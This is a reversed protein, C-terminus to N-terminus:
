NVAPRMKRRRIEGVLLAAFGAALLVATSPEPIIPATSDVWTPGSIVGHNSGAQDFLTGGAGEDFNWYSVLGPTSDPILRNHWHAMEGPTRAVNWIRVEDMVGLFQRNNGNNNGLILNGTALAVSTVFDESAVSQGNLFLTAATGDYVVALHSWANLPVIDPSAVEQNNIASNFSQTSAQLALTYRNNINHERNVVRPFLNAIATPFVWAEITFESGLDLTPSAPMRVTQFPGTFQLANGALGAASACSYGAVLIVGILTLRRTATRLTTRM